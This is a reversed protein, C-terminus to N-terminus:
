RVVIGLRKKTSAAYKRGIPIRTNPLDKLYLLYSGGAYYKISGVRNLNVIYNRHIQHFNDPMKKLIDKLTSRTEYTNDRTELHVIKKSIWLYNINDIEIIIHRGKNLISLVNLNTTTTRSKSYLNLLWTKSEELDDFVQIDFENTIEVSRYLSQKSSADESCVYAIRLEDKWELILPLFENELWKLSNSWTGRMETQDIIFNSCEKEHALKFVEMASEQILKSSFYGLVKIYIFGSDDYIVNCYDAEFLVEKEM